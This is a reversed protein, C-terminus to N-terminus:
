QWTHSSSPTRSFFYGGVGSGLKGEVEEEEEEVERMKNGTWVKMERERRGMREKEFDNRRKLLVRSKDKLGNEGRM